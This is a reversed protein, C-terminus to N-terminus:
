CIIKRSFYRFSIKFSFKENGSELFCLRKKRDVKLLYKSNILVSRNLKMFSHNVLKQQVEALYLSVMESKGGVQFIESYNGEAQVYLIQTPAIFTIGSRSKFGTKQMNVKGLLSSVNDQNDSSKFAKKYRKIAKTVEFPDIPKTIYDFVSHRIADIAYHDYATVFIICPLEYEFHQMEHLLEFGSKGPMQIDLFVIEPKKALIIRLGDDVNTASDIVELGSIEKVLNKFLDIAHQEDDIIISSTNEM